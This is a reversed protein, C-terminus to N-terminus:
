ASSPMRSLASPRTPESIHILSLEYVLDISVGDIKLETLYPGPTKALWEALEEASFVNDLSTMPELHEVDAFASDTVAAGVEKTPSDPVALEPHEAELKQLARFMEDFEADTIVPDGNYYLDRHHRVEKALEDWERLLDKDISGNNETVSGWHLYASVPVM